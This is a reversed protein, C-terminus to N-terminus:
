STGYFMKLTSKRSGLIINLHREGDKSQIGYFSFYFITLNVLTHNNGFEALLIFGVEFGTRSCVPTDLGDGKAIIIGEHDDGKEDEDDPDRNNPLRGSGVYKNSM